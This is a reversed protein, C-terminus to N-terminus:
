LIQKCTSQRQHLTSNNGIVEESFINQKINHLFVTKVDVRPTSYSKKNRQKYNLSTIRADSPFTKNERDAIRLHHLLVAYWIYTKPWILYTKLNQSTKMM